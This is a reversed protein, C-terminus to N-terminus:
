TRVALSQEYQQMYYDSQVPHRRLNVMIAIEDDVAFSEAFKLLHFLM